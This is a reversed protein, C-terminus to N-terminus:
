CAVRVERGQVDLWLGRAYKADWALDTAVCRSQYRNEPNPKSMQMYRGNGVPKKDFTVSAQKFWEETLVADCSSGTNIFYGCLGVKGEHEFAKTFVPVRYSGMITSRFPFEIRTYSEDATELRLFRNSGADSVCGAVAALAVVAAM